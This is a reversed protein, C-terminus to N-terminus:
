WRHLGERSVGEDGGLRGVGKWPDDISWANVRGHEGLPVQEFALLVWLAGGTSSLAWEVGVMLRSHWNLRALVVIGDVALLSILLSAILDRGRAIRGM